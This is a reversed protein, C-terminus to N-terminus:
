KKGKLREKLINDQGIEKMSVTFCLPNKSIVRM